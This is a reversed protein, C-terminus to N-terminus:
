RRGRHTGRSHPRAGARRVAPARGTPRCLDRYRELAARYIGEKSDFAAYLSGRGVGTADVLDQISTADYGRTRFVEVAADVAADTDFERLRAM